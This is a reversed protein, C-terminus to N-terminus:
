EEWTDVFELWDNRRGGPPWPWYAALVYIIKEEDPTDRNYVIWFMFGRDFEQWAGGGSQEPGVAWGLRERVGAGERWAQGLCGRPEYFGEPPTLPPPEPQGEAWTVPVRAYTMDDGFLVWAVRLNEYFDADTWFILGREFRQALYHMGEEVSYSACGVLDRASENEYWVKGFGRRPFKICPPTPSLLPSPTATPAPTATPPLLAETPTPTDTPRPTFTATPSPTGTPTARPPVPAAQATQTALIQFAIATETAGVEPTPAPGCSSIFLCFLFFSAPLLRKM